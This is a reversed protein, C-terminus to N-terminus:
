SPNLVRFLVAGRFNCKYRARKTLLRFANLLMLVRRVCATLARQGLIRAELLHQEKWWQLSLLLLLSLLSLPRRFSSNSNSRSRVRVLRRRVVFVQFEREEIYCWLVVIRKFGIKCWVVRM